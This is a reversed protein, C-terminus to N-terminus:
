LLGNRFDAIIKIFEPDRSGYDFNMSEKVRYFFHTFQISLNFINKM